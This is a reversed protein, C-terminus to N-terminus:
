RTAASDGAPPIDPEFQAPVFVIDEAKLKGPYLALLTDKFAALKEKPLRSDHLVRLTISVPSLKLLEKRESNKKTQRATQEQRSSRKDADKAEDRAPAAEAGTDPLRSRVEGVGGKTQEDEDRKLEVKMELFVAARGPGLIRDAVQSQIRAETESNLKALAGLDGEAASAACAASMLGAMMFGMAYKM